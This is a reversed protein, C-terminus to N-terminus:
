IAAMKTAAVGMWMTGANMSNFAFLDWSNVSLSPAIQGPWYITTPWTITYSGANYLWLLFTRSYGNTPAAFTFTTNANLTLVTTSYASSNITIAGGVNTTYLTTEDCHQHSIIGTGTLKAEIEAKTIDANLLSTTLGSNCRGLDINAGKWPTANEYIRILNGSLDIGIQTGNLTSNSPKDLLVRGGITTNVAEIALQSAYINRNSGICLNGNVNLGLPSDVPGLGTSDVMEDVKIKSAM